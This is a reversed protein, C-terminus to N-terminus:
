TSLGSREAGYTLSFADPSDADGALNLNAVLANSIAESATRDGAMRIYQVTPLDPNTALDDWISDDAAGRPGGGFWTALELDHRVGHSGDALQRRPIQLEVYNGAVRVWDAFTAPQLKKVIDVFPRGPGIPPLQRPDGVLVFRQVTALSDLTAALMQETLMSAEDIVVLAANRRRRDDRVLYRGTEGDYRDTAALYSALTQAPRGVKLQLQVRAKGTPALLLVGGTAVKGHEVLARLLTTKGTGSPLCFGSLLTTSSRCVLPRRLGPKIKSRTSTAPSTRTRASLM